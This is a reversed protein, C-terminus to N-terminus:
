ATGHLNLEEQLFNKLIQVELLGVDEAETDSSSLYQNQLSYLRDVHQTLETLRQQKQGSPQRLSVVYYAKISEILKVIESKMDSPQLGSLIEVRGAIELSSPASAEVSM